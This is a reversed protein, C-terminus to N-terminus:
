ACRGTTGVLTGAPDRLDVALNGDGSHGPFVLVDGSDVVGVAGQDDFQITGNRIGEELPGRLLYGGLNVRRLYVEVADLAFAEHAEDVSAGFWGEPSEVPTLLVLLPCGGGVYGQPPFVALVLLAAALATAAVGLLLRQLRPPM